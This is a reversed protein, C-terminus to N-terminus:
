SVLVGNIVYINTFICICHLYVNVDYQSYHGDEGCAGHKAGM